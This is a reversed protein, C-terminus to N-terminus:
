RIILTYIVLFDLFKVMHIVTSLHLVVSKISSWIEAAAERMDIHLLTFVHRFTRAPGSNYNIIGYLITCIFTFIFIKIM